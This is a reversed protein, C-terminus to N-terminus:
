WRALVKKALAVQVGESAAHDMKTSYITVCLLRAGEIVMLGNDSSYAADGLGSVETGPNKTKYTALASALSAADPARGVTVQVFLGNTLPYWCLSGGYPPIGVPADSKGNVEVKGVTDGVAAEIEDKPLLTACADPAFSAVVEAASPTTTATQSPVGVSVAASPSGVVASERATPAGGTSAGCAAVFVSVVLAARTASVVRRIQSIATM